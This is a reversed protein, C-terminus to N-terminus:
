HVILTEVIKGQKNSLFEIFYTGTHIGELGIQLQDMRQNKVSHIFVQKGLIDFIRISINDVERNFFLKLEDNNYAPNPYMNVSFPEEYKESEGSFSEGWLSEVNCGEISIDDIYVMDSNSSADCRIRLVVQDSFDINSIITKADYHALNEFEQGATWTAIKSFSNGGNNSLELFFDEGNEMSVPYFSFSVEVTNFASLSLDDTYLSSSTGANDRLRICGTGSNSYNGFNTSFAADGGGDIWIGWSSEFSEDDLLLCDGSGEQDCAANQDDPICPDGDDPDNGICYGDEDLDYYQGFCSCDIGYTDNITCDDGDDCAQGILANDFAPCDDEADCIGDDDADAFTGNGCNCNEDYIEGTTCNDGDDCPLGTMLCEVDDTCFELEIDDLYIMDSNSSADCRFRLVTENNFPKDTISLNLSFRQNNQFHQGSVWQNLVEYDEGNNFSIELFMDEGSEMSVPLATFSINVMSIGQLFLRESILSSKNGSNDRLRVCKTGSNSQNYNGLQVDIGGDIWAGYDIEFDDESFVDCGAFPECDGQNIDPVCPNNDDPDIGSCYGDNDVDYVVGGNCNCENDFTEGITCDDGDNCEQGTIVCPNADCSSLCNANAIKERILNGPQPGFGLNFNIGVHYLLHCYSMITGKNPIPGDCGDSYGAEAGCGDIPTNNGNWACAHTHKSGLNHGIEHTMVEVAWSYVPISQYGSKIDSYGVSYYNNCLVDIYAVGGSGKQGVLHALDGNFQGSLRDRFSYLNSLTSTGTYPDEVDWIQVENLYLDIGENAYLLSVQNFIAALHDFASMVSGKALVLDHDIEIYMGVCNNSSRTTTTIIDHGVHHIKEETNCNSEKEILVDSEKFLLYQDTQEINSLNYQADISNITAVVGTESFSIAVMSQKWHKVTGWYHVQHDFWIECDPDSILYSKFEDSFIQSRFLELVANESENIPLSIEIFPSRQSLITRLVTQDMELVIGEQVFDSHKDLSNKQQTPFFLKTEDGLAQANHVQPILLLFFVLSNWLLSKRVYRQRPLTTVKM